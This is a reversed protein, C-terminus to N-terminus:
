NVDILSGLPLSSHRNLRSFAAEIPRAPSSSLQPCQWARIRWRAQPRDIYLHRTTHDFLHKRAGGRRPRRTHLGVGRMALCPDIPGNGPESDTRRPQDGLMRLDLREQGIMGPADVLKTAQLIRRGLLHDGGLHHGVQCPQVRMRGTIDHQVLAPAARADGIVHDGLKRCQPRHIVLGASGSSSRAKAQSASLIGSGSSGTTSTWPSAPGSLKRNSAPRRVAGAADGGILGILACRPSHDIAKTNLTM